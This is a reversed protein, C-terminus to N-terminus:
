GEVARKLRGLADEWQRGIQELALRAEDVRKPSFEWLRERGVKVDAVIGAEALVQLHKTVAQRTLQTNATLSTISLAGGACLLAVLRMRTEDGLAFFVPVLAEPSRLRAAGATTRGAM